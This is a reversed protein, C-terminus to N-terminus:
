SWPLTARLLTPGGAPSTVTLLGGLGEVRDVLGALGHGKAPEAGGVGDDEVEVSLVTDPGTGASWVRVAAASADAHKATNTLAETVVFYAASEIAEAPRVADPLTVDVSTPVTSRAAVSTLAAALGRDALVPPAIGRSLARLEALTDAAQSRAAALLARAAEPDDDLRREAISLDMGLRVLRQQPGDHIDRELRRLSQTEASAAATRRAELDEIQAALAQRSTGTLLLRAWGVHLTTCWRIVPVITAAFLLGLLLNLQSETMPLNLLEALGQNDVVVGDSPPLWRQWFWYTLGGLAGAWWTVAVSFTFISLAMAGLGHLVAAWRLPDALRGFMGRFGTGRPPAYSVPALVTGRAALRARELRGFGVAAALTAVAVPIGVVTILLGAALSLGTVLVTFSTITIPLALLLYASDLGLSRLTGPGFMAPTSSQATSSWGRSPDAPDSPVSWATGDWTWGDTQWSDVQGDPPWLAPSAAPDGAPDFAPTLSM